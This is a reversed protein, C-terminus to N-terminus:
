LGPERGEAMAMIEFSALMRLRQSADDLDGDILERIEKLYNFLTTRHIYLAESTRLLNMNNELYVKLVNYYDKRKGRYAMLKRVDADCFHIAPLVSCGREHYHRLAYDSFRPITVAQGRPVLELDGACVAAIKAEEFYEDSDLVDDYVESSGFARSFEFALEAFASRTTGDADPEDSLPAVCAIGEEYRIACCGPLAIELRSCLFVDASTSLASPTLEAWMCMYRDHRKWNWLRLSDDLQRGEEATGEILAVVYTRFIQDLENSRASPDKLASRVVETFIEALQFHGPLIPIDGFLIVVRGAYEGTRSLNVYLSNGNGMLADSYIAAGHTSFTQQFEDNRVLNHLFKPSAVYYSSRKELYETALAENIGMSNGVVVYNADYINIPCGFMESGTQCLQDLDRNRLLEENLRAHWEGFRRFADMAARLVSQYGHSADVQVYQCFHSRASQREQGIVILYCEVDPINFDRESADVVYLVDNTLEEGPIYPYVAGIAIKSALANLSTRNRLEGLADAMMNMSVLM